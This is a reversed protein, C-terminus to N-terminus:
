RPATDVFSPRQALKEYLKALNPHGSRWDIEPFRFDLYGLTCGVAIDGLSLYIGACFPKDGLGQSALYEGFTTNAANNDEGLWTSGRVYVSAVQPAGNTVVDPGAQFDGLVEGPTLVHNYIRFEDYDAQLNADATFQSRGLFNNIDNIASILIGSPLGGM